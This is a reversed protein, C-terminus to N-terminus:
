LGSPAPAGPTTVRAAPMSRYDGSGYGGSDGYGGGDGSGDAGGDGTGSGDSGADGADEPEGTGDQAATIMQGAPSVVYWAGGVGQGNVDGPAADGAYTYLPWEAYTLQPAGDDREVTGVLDATAAGGASVPADEAGSRLPPWNEACEDFCSSTGPGDDTFLYLVNGDGDTLVDGFRENAVTGLAVVDGGEGAREEEPGASEGYDAPPEEPDAVGAPDPASDDTSCGTVLLFTTLGLAVASMAETSM